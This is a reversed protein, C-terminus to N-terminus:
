QSDAIFKLRSRRLQWLILCCPCWTIHKGNKNEYEKAVGAVNRGYAERINGGSQFWDPMAKELWAPRLYEQDLDLSDDTANGDVLLRETMTRTM